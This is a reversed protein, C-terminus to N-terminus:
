YLKERRRHEGGGGNKLAIRSLWTAEVEVGGSRALEPM